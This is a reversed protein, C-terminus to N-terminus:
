GDSREKRAASTPSVGKFKKFIRSFYNPDHYGVAFAIEKVTRPDEQLLQEAVDLRVSNLHDNFSAGVHESFLRSLHGASVGCHDAVDTLQLAEAYHTDIFRVATKLVEPWHADSRKTTEEVLRRLVRRAWADIEKRTEFEMVDQVPDAIVISLEPDGVRADFDHLLREFAAAIRHKGIHFSWASFVDNSLTDYPEVVEEPTRARAVSRVFERVRSRFERLRQEGGGVTPIAAFAEDCSRFLQDYPRRSGVGVAFRGTPGVATAVVEEVVRRVFADLVETSVAEAVFVVMRRMNEAWLIHHRRMIQDAIAPYLDTRETEIAVVTGGDGPFQFLRKYRAWATADFAKWTLLLMFSQTERALAEADHEVEELRHSLREREEDLEDKARFMTEIFRKRSVPKVLYAFVRLPIARQALDFREYATSLIYLADPFDHQMERITDLGDIGPMAIDMLVVDPRRERAAAIAERGSRATGSVVFDDLSNEVLYSFSELVPEEDDVILVSYM